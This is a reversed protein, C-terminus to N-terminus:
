MLVRVRSTMCPAYRLEFNNRTQSLTKRTVEIELKRMLEEKIYGPDQFHVAWSGLALRLRTLYPKTTPKEESEVDEM